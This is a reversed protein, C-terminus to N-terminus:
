PPGPEAWMRESLAGEGEAELESEVREADRVLGGARLLNAVLRLESFRPARQLVRVKQQLVWWGLQEPALREPLGLARALSDLSSRHGLGVRARGDVFLDDFLPPEELPREVPNRGGRRRERGGDVVVAPGQYGGFIRETLMRAQARNNPDWKPASSASRRPSENARLRPADKRGMQGTDIGWAGYDGARELALFATRPSLVPVRGEMLRARTWLEELAKADGSEGGEAEITRGIWRQEGTSTLLPAWGEVRYPTRPPAGRHLALVRKVGTALAEASFSGGGTETALADLDSNADGVKLLPLVARQFCRQAGDGESRAGDGLFVVARAGLQQARECATRLMLDQRLVGASHVSDLSEVEQYHWDASALRIPVEPLASRLQDIVARQALRRVPDMRMSTEAVVLVGPPATSAGAELGTIAFGGVAGPLRAHALAVPPAVPLLVWGSPEAEVKVGDVKVVSGEPPLYVAQEGVFATPEVWELEFTRLGKPEFPYISIEVWGPGGWTVLLPDRRGRVIAEYIETARKRPVWAAEMARGEVHLVARTVAAGPPVALKLKGEVVYETPNLLRTVLRSRTAHSGPQVSVESSVRMLPLLAPGEALRAHLHGGTSVPAPPFRAADPSPQGGCSHIVVALTLLARRVM